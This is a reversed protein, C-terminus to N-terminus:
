PTASSSIVTTVSAAFSVNIAFHVLIDFTNKEVDELKSDTISFASQSFKNIMEQQWPEMLPISEAVGIM